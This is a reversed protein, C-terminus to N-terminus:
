EQPAFQYVYTAAALDPVAMGSEIDALRRSEGAAIEESRLLIEEARDAPVFCVGTDDAVVLDGAEVSVGAIKVVGNIEVTRVRWKGTVPTVERSWVPFGISRSHGVDRIGGDVIAGVEGQRNAITTSIGGMNSVGAVGEVVLIDGPEAQNHGEIEALRSTRTRAVESSALPQPENRVTLARGVISKGALTPRLVSAGVVGRLGMEDLTDSVTGTPDSLSRFREIIDDPVSRPMPFVRQENVKGTLPKPNTTEM